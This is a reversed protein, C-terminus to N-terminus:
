RVSEIFDRVAKGLEAEDSRSADKNSPSLKELVRSFASGIIAGQTHRAVSEFSERDRVGFGVFLPSNLGMDAVRKFFREQAETVAVAGGTVADSSLLYLFAPDERDFSVIREPSTRSTVLFVPKIGSENFLLRYQSRYLDFPMDPIIVGDVGCESADHLFRSFGYQEVPNIYGMLLIPMQAVSRSERLQSFLLKLTMGNAIAVQNGHQITPGDSVPDSFPFGIEVMDVGNKQLQSLITLTDNLRPYGATFFISLAKSRPLNLFRNLNM